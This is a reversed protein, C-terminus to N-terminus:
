LGEREILEMWMQIVNETVEDFARKSGDQQKVVLRKRAAMPAGLGMRTIAGIRGLGTAEASTVARDYPTPRDLM